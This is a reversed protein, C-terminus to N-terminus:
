EAFMEDVYRMLEKRLAKISIPAKGSADLSRDMWMGDLVYLIIALKEPHECEEVLTAFNRQKLKRLNKLFKDDSYIGMLNHLQNQHLEFYELSADITAKLLRGNQEPLADYIEQRRANYVVEYRKLVGTLIENKNKFYHFVGGKSLGAEAAITEISTKGFGKQYLVRSAADIIADRQLQQREKM